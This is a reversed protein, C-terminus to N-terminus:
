YVYKFFFFFYRCANVPIIHLLQALGKILVKWADVVEYAVPILDPVLLGNKPPDLPKEIGLQAFKKDERAAQKIKEFPIPYPKKKKKPLRHPLDVNQSHAEVNQSHAEQIKVSPSKKPRQSACLFTGLIIPRGKQLQEHGFQLLFLVSTQPELVVIQSSLSV